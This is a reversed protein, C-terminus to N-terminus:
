RRTEMPAATRLSGLRSEAADRRLDTRTAVSLFGSYAAIADNKKGQRDLCQALAFRPAAFFPNLEVAKRLQTEADADRGVALLAYGYYNRISVDDGSLQVGLDLESLATTTDHAGLAMLALHLHAPAYSLDEQLARGYAERAAQTDGLREHIVAISHEALAKSQYVYVLDKKDRKRLDEVASALQALASDMQNQQFFIRGRDMRLPGNRSDEKIAQAYLTLAEDFRGDGYALWARDASSASRMEKDIAYRIEIASGAGMREYKNSIEDAVTEFIERDLTQSVFPNLTLARLFLSDIRRIDASQLTRRDGSWYKVLRAPDALLLAIRRAYFADAMSPDRRTTWYLADAAKDPDTKMQQMAFAYYAHADNTDAGAPMRPRRPAKENQALSPAAATAVLLAAALFTRISM